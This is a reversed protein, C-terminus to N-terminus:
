SGRRGMIGMATAIIPLLLYRLGIDYFYSVVEMGAMPVLIVLDLGLNILMWYLGIVFGTAMGPTIRTFAKLLLLVGTGGSVVIIISKFLEKQVLLQGAQDFFMFSFVFPIVWSLLGLLLIVYDTFIKKM